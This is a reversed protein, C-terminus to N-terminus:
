QSVESSEHQRKCIKKMAEILTSAKYPTLWSVNEIGTYKKMFGQLRKPNDAWGLQKELDKIKWLQERSARSNPKSKKKGTRREELKDIVNIAEYKTLASIHEQGILNFIFTHLLENDLGLEKATVYIKRIQAKNIMAADRALPILHPNTLRLYPLM